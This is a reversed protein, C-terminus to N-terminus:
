IGELEETYVWEPTTQDGGCWFVQVAYGDKWRCGVVEVVVALSADDDPDSYIEKYKVLDGVKM